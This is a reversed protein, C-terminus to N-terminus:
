KTGGEIVQRVAALDFRLTREFKICPIRGSSAWFRVCAMTVRYFKALEKTTVLNPLEAQTTQHLPQQM